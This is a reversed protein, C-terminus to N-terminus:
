VCKTGKQEHWGRELIDEGAEVWLVVMERYNEWDSTLRGGAALIVKCKKTHTDKQRKKLQGRPM